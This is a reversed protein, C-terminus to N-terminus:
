QGGYLEVERGEVVSEKQQAIVGGRQLWLSHGVRLKENGGAVSDGHDLGHAGRGEDVLCVCVCVYMCLECCRERVEM